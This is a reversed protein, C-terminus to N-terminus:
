IVHKIFKFLKIVKNSSALKILFVLKDVLLPSFDPEVASMVIMAQNVNAIAPRVLYNTRPLIKQIAYRDEILEYEVRDGVLPKSGLRLTGMATALISEGERTLLTYQNSVIKIILGTM